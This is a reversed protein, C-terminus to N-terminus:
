KNELAAAALEELAEYTLSGPQNYIVEGRRNVVITQPLMLSGGLSAIVEGGTDVAFALAYDFEALYADVDDTILDSHLALVKVDQPHASQLRDFHPLEKVCPGCWTAWLNIVVAKGRYRSLTFTQGDTQVLTFDPLLEGPHFGTPTDNALPAPSFANFYILAAALLALAACWVARSQKRTM